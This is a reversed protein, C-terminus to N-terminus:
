WLTSLFLVSTKLYAYTIERLVVVPKVESRPIYRFQIHPRPTPFTSVCYVLCTDGYCYYSLSQETWVRDAHRGQVRAMEYTSHRRIGRGLRHGRLTTRSQIPAPVLERASFLITTTTPVFISLQDRSRKGSRRPVPRGYYKM